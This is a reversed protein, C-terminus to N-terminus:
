AFYFSREFSGLLGKNIEDLARRSTHEAKSDDVQDIVEVPIGGTNAMKLRPTVAAQTCPSSSSVERAVEVGVTNKSVISSQYVNGTSVRRM